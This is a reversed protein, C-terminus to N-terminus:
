CFVKNQYLSQECVTSLAFFEATPLPPLWLAHLLCSLQRLIRYSFFRFFHGTPSIVQFGLHLVASEEHLTVVRRAQLPPPSRTNVTTCCHVSSTQFDRPLLKCSTVSVALPMKTASYAFPLHWKTIWQEVFGRIFIFVGKFFAKLKM